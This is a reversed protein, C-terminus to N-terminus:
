RMHEKKVSSDRRDKDVSSERRTEDWEWQQDVICQPASLEISVTGQPNRRRITGQPSWGQGM